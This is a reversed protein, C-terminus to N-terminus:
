DEGGLSFIGMERFKGTAYTFCIREYKKFKTNKLLFQKEEEARDGSEWVLLEKVNENIGKIFSDRIRTDEDNFYPYFVTLMIAIDFKEKGKYNEFAETRISAKIHLMKNVKEMLRYHDPDFEIMTVEAGMRYFMQGIYGLNAGIDVVKKNNMRCDRFYELLHHLRSKNFEERYTHLHLYYPNPIPQYFETTGQRVIVEHVNRAMETNKWIEFDKQPIKVPMRTMGSYYLFSVRHHGDLLNFYGRENWEGTAPHAIFFDMGKNLERQMMRFERYRREILLEDSFGSVMNRTTFLGQFWKCYEEPQESGDMFFHYLNNYPGFCIIPHNGWKRIHVTWELTRNEVNAKDGDESFLLEVPIWAIVNQDDMQRIFAHDILERKLIQDNHIYLYQDKKKQMDRDIHPFLSELMTKDCVKKLMDEHFYIYARWSAFLVKELPIGCDICTHYIMECNELVCVLIIDYEVDKVLRAPYVDYGKFLQKMPETEVFGVLIVNDFYGNRLYRTALRGTGWVMAKVM